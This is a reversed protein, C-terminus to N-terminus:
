LYSEVGSFDQRLRSEFGSDEVRSSSAKVVLGVLCHLFSSGLTVTRTAWPVPHVLTMLEDELGLVM